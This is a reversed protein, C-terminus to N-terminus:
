GFLEIAVGKHHIAGGIQHVQELEILIPGSIEAGAIIPGLALEHGRCVLTETRYRERRAPVAADIEHVHIAAHRLVLRDLGVIQLVINKLVPQPIADVLATDITWVPM